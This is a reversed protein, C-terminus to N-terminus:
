DPGFAADDYGAEWLKHKQTGAEYPNQPSDVDEGNEIKERHELYAKKGEGRINIREWPTM